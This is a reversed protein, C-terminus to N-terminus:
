YFVVIFSLLFSCCSVFLYCLIAVFLLLMHSFKYYLVDYFLWGYWAAGAYGFRCVASNTHLHCGFAMKTHCLHRYSCGADTQKPQSSAQEEESASTPLEEDWPPVQDSIGFSLPMFVVEICFVYCVLYFSTLDQCAMSPNLCKM